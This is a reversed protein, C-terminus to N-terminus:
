PNAWTYTYTVMCYIEALIWGDPEQFDRRVRFRNTHIALGGRTPDTQLVKKVDRIMRERITGSNTSATFPDRNGRTDRAAAMIFIDLDEAQDSFDAYLESEDEDGTNRIFYLYNGYEPRFHARSDFYDVRVVKSPTYWYTTGDDGTIAELETKIKALIQEAVSEAM